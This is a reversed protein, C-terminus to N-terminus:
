VPSPFTEKDDAMHEREEEPCHWTVTVPAANPETTRAPDYTPSELLMPLLPLKATMTFETVTTVQALRDGSMPVGALHVAVTMPEVGVPLTVHDLLPEPLNV